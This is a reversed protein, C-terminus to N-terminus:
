CLRYKAMRYRLTNRTLKLLRSAESINGGAEHLAEMLMKKEMDQLSLGFALLSPRAHGDPLDAKAPPTPAGSNSFSAPLHEPLITPSKCTITLGEVVNHLERVNGPWDHRRLWEIAAPSFDPVRRGRDRRITDLFHRVLPEIDDPRERLPPIRLQYVNLRYYLDLRFKGAKIHAPLDENTAAVVRIDVPIDRTDGLPSIVHDELVRLLKAQAMPSVEGIEDLFVTGGEAAQFRGLKPQKADTFAGRQYGFLESEMLHEPIGACNLAVFPGKARPSAAHIAHAFLEKGTGSEGTILVTADTAAVEAALHKVLRMQSSVSIIRDFGSSGAASAQDAGAAIQMRLLTTRVDSTTLPNVLYDAAGSRLADVAARASDEVGVVVVPISPALSRFQPLISNLPRSQRHEDFIVCDFDTREGLVRLGEEPTPAFQLILPLDSVSKELTTKTSPDSSIVLLLPPM